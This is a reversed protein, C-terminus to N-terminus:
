DHWLVEKIETVSSVKKKLGEVVALGRGRPLTRRALPKTCIGIVSVTLRQEIRDSVQHRSFCFAFMGLRCIPAHWRLRVPRWVGGVGFLIGALSLVVGWRFIRLVLITFRFTTFKLMRLRRFPWLPQLQRLVFGILSLTGPGNATEPQHTWRTWGWILAVPAGLLGHRGSTRVHGSRLHECGSHRRGTNCTRRCTTPSVDRYRKNGSSTPRGARGNVDAIGSGDVASTTLNKRNRFVPTSDPRPFM